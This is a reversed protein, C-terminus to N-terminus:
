EGHLSIENLVSGNAIMDRVSHSDSGVWVKFDPFTWYNEQVCGNYKSVNFEMCKSKKITLDRLYNCYEQSFLPRFIEETGLQFPHALVDVLPNAYSNYTFDFVAL